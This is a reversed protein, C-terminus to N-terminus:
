VRRALRKKWAVAKAAHRKGSTKMWQQAAMNGNEAQTRIFRKADEFMVYLDYSDLAGTKLVDDLTIM